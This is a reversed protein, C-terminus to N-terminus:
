FFDKDTNIDLYLRFLFSFPCFGQHQLFVGGRTAVSRVGGWLPPVADEICKLHESQEVMLFMRFHRALHFIHHESREVMFVDPVCIFNKVPM